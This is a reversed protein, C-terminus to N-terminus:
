TVTQQQLTLTIRTKCTRINNNYIDVAHPRLPRFPWITWLLTVDTPSSSSALTQCRRTSFVNDIYLVTQSFVAGTLLRTNAVM